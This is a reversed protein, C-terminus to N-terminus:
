YDEEVISFDYHGKSPELSFWPYMIQAGEFRPNQLFPHDHIAQRDRAFYVFHKIGDEPIPCKADAYKKYADAYRESPNTWQANSSSGLMLIPLSVLLKKIQQRSCPQPITVLVKMDNKWRGLSLSGARPLRPNCGSRSPRTLHLSPNLTGVPIVTETFM